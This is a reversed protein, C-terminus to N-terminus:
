EVVIVDYGFFEESNGSAERLLKKETVGFLGEDDKLAEVVAAPSKFIDAKAIDGWVTDQSWKQLIFMGGVTIYIRLIKTYTGKSETQEAVM